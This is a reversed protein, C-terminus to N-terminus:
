DSNGILVKIEGLIEKWLGELPDRGYVNTM